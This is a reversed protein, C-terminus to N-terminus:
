LTNQTTKIKDKKADCCTKVNEIGETKTKYNTQYKWYFSFWM